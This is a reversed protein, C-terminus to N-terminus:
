VGLDEVADRADALERVLKETPAANSRYTVILYDQLECLCKYADREELLASAIEILEDRESM